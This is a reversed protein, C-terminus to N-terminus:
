AGVSIVETDDDDHDDDRPSAHFRTSPSALPLYPSTVTIILNLL